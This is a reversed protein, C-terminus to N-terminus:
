LKKFMGNKNIYYSLKVTSTDPHDKKRMIDGNESFELAAITFKQITIQGNEDIKFNRYYETEFTFRNDLLIQDVLHNNFFSNLQINLVKMDNEGRTNFIILELFIEKSLNIKEILYYKEGVKFKSDIGAEKVSININKQTFEHETLSPINNNVLYDSTELERNYYIKVNESSIPLRNVIPIKNDKDILQKTMNDNSKDSLSKDCSNAISIVTLLLCFLKMNRIKSRMIDLIIGKYM